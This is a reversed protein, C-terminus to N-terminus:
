PIYVDIQVMVDFKICHYLLLACSFCVVFTGLSSFPGLGRIERKKRRKGRDTEITKKHKDNIKTDSGHHWVGLQLVLLLTTVKVV